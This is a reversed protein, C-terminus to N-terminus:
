GEEEVPSKTRPPILGAARLDGVRVTDRRWDPVIGYMGLISRVNSTTRGSVGALGHVTVEFDDPDWDWIRTTTTSAFAPVTGSM